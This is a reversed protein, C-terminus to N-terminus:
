RSLRSQEEEDRSETARELLIETKSDRQAQTQGSKEKNRDRDRGTGGEKGEGIEMETCKVSMVRAETSVLMAEVKLHSRLSQSPAVPTVPGTAGAPARAPHLLLRPNVTLAM